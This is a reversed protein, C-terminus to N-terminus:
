SVKSAWSVRTGISAPSGYGADGLARELLRASDLIHQEVLARVDPNHCRFAEVIERHQELNSEYLENLETSASWAAQGHFVRRAARAAEALRGVGSADVYIDHFADNALVWDSAIARADGGGAAARLAKTLRAFRAEAQQLMRLDSKSLREIALQAAFGELAARIVFTELLEQQALPRVRVGRKGAFSVLGLAELRSLAARVPTRSVGFEESLQEQRLIVGATLEGSLIADELIRAIEDAKTEQASM